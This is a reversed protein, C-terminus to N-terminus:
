NTQNLTSTKINMLFYKSSNLLILVAKSCSDLDLVYLRAEQSKNKITYIRNLLM